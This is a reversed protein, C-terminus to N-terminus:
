QRAEESPYLSKTIDRSRASALPDDVQQRFTATTADIAVLRADHLRQGVRAFYTKNDPAQLLAIFDRGSRVVGKLAVEAVQFGEIGPKRAGTSNVPGVPRVLSIFPDRRGQSSYILGGEPVPLLSMDLPPAVPEQVIDGSAPAVVEGPEPMEQGFTVAPVFVALAAAGLAMALIRPKKM